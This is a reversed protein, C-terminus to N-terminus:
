QTSTIHQTKIKSIILTPKRMREQRSQIIFDAKSKQGYSIERLALSPTYTHRDMQRHRHM